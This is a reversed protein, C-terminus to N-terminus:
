KRKLMLVDHVVIALGMVIIPSLVIALNIYPTM